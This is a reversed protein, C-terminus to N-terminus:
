INIQYKLIVSNAKNYLIFTNNKILYDLFRLNLLLAKKATAWSCSRLKRSNETNPESSYIQITQWEFYDKSLKYWIM